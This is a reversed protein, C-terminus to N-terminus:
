RIARLAHRLFMQFEGDFTPLFTAPLHRRQRLYAICHAVHGLQEGLTLAERLARSNGWPELYAERLRAFWPDTPALGNFRELFLFPVVLSAFPHGISTDGWDLFRLRDGDTHLNNMHLDDHQVTDAIGHGALEACLVALRPALSRLERVETDDLPLEHAAALLDAFRAPLSAVRLDPVGHRLHEEAFASEGRQLEAYLPLARLWVDPPNGIMRVPTGADRLLLWARAADYGLVTPVRDPWRTYLHATLRPEFAQV